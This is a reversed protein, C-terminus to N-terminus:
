RSLPHLPVAFKPVALVKAPNKTNIFYLSAEVRARARM